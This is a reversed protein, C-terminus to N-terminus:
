SCGNQKLWGFKIWMVSEDSGKPTCREFNWSQIMTDIYLQLAVCIVLKIGLRWYVIAQLGVSTLVLEGLTCVQFNKQLDMEGPIEAIRLQVSAAREGVVSGM